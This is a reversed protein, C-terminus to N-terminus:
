PSVVEDTPVTATTGELLKSIKEAIAFLYTDSREVRHKKAESLFKHLMPLLEPAWEAMQKRSVVANKVKILRYKATDGEGWKEVRYPIEPTTTWRRLCNNVDVLHWDDKDADQLKERFQELTLWEQKRGFLKVIQQRVFKKKRHLGTEKLLVLVERFRRQEDKVAAETNAKHGRFDRDGKTSEWLRRFAGETLNTPLTWEKICQTDFFGIFRGFRLRCEVWPRSVDKGWRKGLFEALQEQSWESELFAKAMEQDRYGDVREQLAAAQEEIHTLRADLQQETMMNVM